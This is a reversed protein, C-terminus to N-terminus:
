FTLSEPLRDILPITVQLNKLLGVLCINLNTQCGMGPLSLTSFGFCNHQTSLNVAHEPANRSWSRPHHQQAKDSCDDNLFAMCCFLKKLTQYPTPCMYKQEPSRSKCNQFMKIVFARIEMWMFNESKAFCGARFQHTKTNQCRGKLCIHSGNCSRVKVHHIRGTHHQCRDSPM